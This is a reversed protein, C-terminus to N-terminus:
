HEMEMAIAAKPYVCFYDEREAGPYADFSVSFFIWLIVVKTYNVQFDACISSSTPSAGALVLRKRKLM